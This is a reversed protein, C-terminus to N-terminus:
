LGIGGGGQTRKSEEEISSKRQRAAKVQASGFRYSLNLRFQRSEWGGSMNAKFGTVDSVGAWRMTQFIDTVTARVTAKGKFLVQQLGLDIGYMEKAKLAGQWVTPSSYFGSLEATTTKGLKATQQTFVTVAARKIDVKYTPDSGQFHSYNANINAFLSYWKYQLPVSLNLSVVDQKALNDTTIFGRSGENRPIIAFMDTVRSYNLTTTFRYKFTNTIGFSNTYQPRLATNGRQFTFKDLNFEFPNLQQYGPRDIRRSFTLGWQNMPNKNFTIAASPFLNTYDRELVSDIAVNKSEEYNWRFGQSNGESHTNEMRLGAQIMFGKFQRNYNAYLANINEKYVFNNRHDEVQTASNNFRRFTNDTQVYSVKGGFGLRGKKFNQEYDAKASYIDIESPTLLNYIDRFKLTSGDATYTLNPQLQDNMSNFFGYDADVNLEHGSTDAFRYNLNFNMNDREGEARNDAVLLENPTKSPIFGINTRSANFFANENLNGNVMIGVTNRNDAYFDVGAKFGHSRNRNRMDSRQQYSSDIATERYLNMFNMGNSRNYNYNGFINIKNKRYNLTVGENYKAYTGINWGTNVSGNVGYAKNKKLRINIIGANGAAEYKASPNTIIEISEVQSSQLTKLYNALDAGSMPSPKGDVYVVVGNKGALNINDDKDVTVGPAKRLLELADNGVANITGEVNLITKDAKVEVMPRRATVTVGRMDGTIKNLELAPVTVLADSFEFPASFVPVYGVYSVGILYTGPKPDSFQYAGEKTVSLKLVTSDKGRLLSVTAGNVPNGTNDRVTGSIQQAFAATSLLCAAIVYFYKRM